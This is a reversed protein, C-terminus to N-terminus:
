KIRRGNKLSKKIVKILRSDLKIVKHVQRKSSECNGELVKKFKLVGSM